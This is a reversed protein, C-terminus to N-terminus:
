RQELLAALQQIHREQAPILDALIIQRADPNVDGVVERYDKLGHEEGEKLAKIAATDGLAKATGEM